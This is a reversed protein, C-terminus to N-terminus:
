SGPPAVASNGVEPKFPMKLHCVGERLSSQVELGSKHFVNLMARNDLMVDAVLGNLGNAKAHQILHRILNAGIGKGQWEDRVIFAVDAYDTGRDVFYQAVAVIEPERGEEPCTEAVIAMNHRYDVDLYYQMEQHPIRQIIRQFRKYITHESLSYFLDRLKPEDTVRIPRILVCGGDRLTVKEESDRPYVAKPEIQDIFVYRQEKAAKLLEARFDPHAVSILALARERISKGQLDAIGYETVVFHVDGRSTVVGAGPSLIPAIRSVSGGRATAPLAIIPRGRPCMSAGRIFDVQGGIGSYFKTGISDACVQGTLDVQLASNIAVMRHQRAIRIPDNIYDSPHFTFAPNRDLFDYLRKSGFTFSSSVKHPHITKYKGTLAGSQMLDIVGDSFMETWLGLDKRGLLAKLVADPIQGIGTQLTCGDEILTAVNKGIEQSIADPEEPKHELLPRESTVFCDIREMPLFGAGFIVPVNPNVEAIVLSASEVAALVIDVSMGLNVFGFRDPPSCQILAADVPLRRQRMLAPIRSLFVPTYDARGEQVAQRVNTGIFFANHRFSEACRPDTYPAPGLTLLHVVTNDAFHEAQRVLAEVLSVPLAAASGVFISKGRPIRLVAEDPTTRKAAYKQEWSTM